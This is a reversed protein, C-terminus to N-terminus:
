KIKAKEFIKNAKAVEKSFDIRKGNAENFRAQKIFEKAAKGTLVPTYKIELAM